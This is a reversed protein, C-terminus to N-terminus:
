LKQGYEEIFRDYGYGEPCKDSHMCWGAHQNREEMTMLILPKHGTIRYVLVALDAAGRLMTDKDPYDPLYEMAGHHCTKGDVNPGDASMSIYNVEKNTEPSIYMIPTINIDDPWPVEAIGDIDVLKGGTIPLRRIRYPGGFCPVIREAHVESQIKEKWTLGDAPASRFEREAERRTKWEKYDPPLREKLGLTELIGM